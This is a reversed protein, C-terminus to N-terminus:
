FAGAAARHARGPPRHTRSPADLDRALVRIRADPSSDFDCSVIRAHVSCAFESRAEGVEEAALVGRHGVKEDSERVEIAPAEPLREPVLAKEGEEAPLQLYGRSGGLVPLGRGLEDLLVASTSAASRLPSRHREETMSSAFTRVGSFAPSTSGRNKPRDLRSAANTAAEIRGTSFRGARSNMTVDM